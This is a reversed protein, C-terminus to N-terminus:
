WEAHTALRAAARQLSLETSFPDNAWRAAQLRQSAKIHEEYFATTDHVHIRCPTLPPLMSSQTALAADLPRMAVGVRARRAPTRETASATAGDQCLSYTYFM